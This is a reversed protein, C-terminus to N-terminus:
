PTPVLRSSDEPDGYEPYHLKLCEPCIGHSFDAGAHDHLYAEIPQWASSEVRIKKCHCCIPLLGAITRLEQRSAALEATVRRAQLSLLGIFILITGLNLFLISAGFLLQALGDVPIVLLLAMVAGRLLHFGGLLWFVWSLPCAPEQPFMRHVGEHLVRGTQLLIVASALSILLCRLTLSPLAFLFIMQALLVGALILADGLVPLDRDFFRGLGRRILILGCIYVLNGIIVSIWLPILGRMGILLGASGLLAASWLWLRLGPYSRQTRFVMLLALFLGWATIGSLLSLPLPDFLPPM